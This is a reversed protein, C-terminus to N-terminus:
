LPPLGQPTWAFLGGSASAAYFAGNSVAPRSLFTQGPAEAWVDLGSIRIGATKGDAGVALATGGSVVVGRTSIDVAVAALFRGSGADLVYLSGDDSGVVVRGWSIAPSDYIPGRTAYRWVISGNAGSLAYVSGDSSGAYVLGGSVSVATGILGPIDATWRRAGGSADLAMVETQSGVAETIFASNSHFDYAPATGVGAVPKVLWLRRGSTAFAAVYGSTSAAIVSGGEVLPPLVRGGLYASWSSRGSTSVAYLHGDAGGMYVLGASENVAPAGSIAWGTPTRWEWLRHSDYTSLAYLRGSGDGVYVVGDAVAPSSLNGSAATFRWAPDLLVDQGPDISGGIIADDNEAGARSFDCGLQSWPESIYIPAESQSRGGPGSVLISVPGIPATPPLALLASFSGGGGATAHGLTFGPMSITLSEGASFGKGNLYFPAQPVPYHQSAQVQPVGPVPRVFFWERVGRPDPTGGRSVANVQVLYTAGSAAAPFRSTWRTLANGPSTLTAYNTVPAIHWSRTAGDWWRGNMGSQRVGISVAGVGSSETAQGSVVVDGRPNFIVAGPPPSQISTSPTGANSGSPRFDYLYGGNSSVLINDTSVAPSPAIWSATQFQYLLRGTALSLARFYDNLDGYAVIEHGAPGAIAPSSIVETVADTAGAGPTDYRWIKQGTVANVDYIGSNCGLVLNVGDLAATSLSEDLSGYDRNMSFQWRVRGNTFDLAYVVGDKSTVYAVGDKFGNAGVPSITVGSGIDYDGHANTTKFRWILQGNLASLSYISQDANSTGFLIRGLGNADVGYSLSGWIALVSRFRNYKWEVQCNSANIAMVFGTVGPLWGTAFYVSPVGGPPTAAVPSAYFMHGIRVSCEVAGTSANLKYATGDAATGVWVAGNSVLPTDRIASGLSTSWIQQGTDVNVAFVAGGDTGQYTIATRRASDYAVVPSSLAPSYLNLAWGLGLTSANTSDVGAGPAYGSLSADGHLEPWDVALPDSRGTNALQAAGASLALPAGAVILLTGLVCGLLKQLWRSGMTAGSLHGLSRSGSITARWSTPTNPLTVGTWSAVVLAVLSGLALPGLTLPPLFRRLTPRFRPGGRSLRLMSM